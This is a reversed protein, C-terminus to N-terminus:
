SGGAGALGSSRLTDISVYTVARLPVPGVGKKKPAPPDIVTLEVITAFILENYPTSELVGFRQASKAGFTLASGSAATVTSVIDFPVVVFAGGGRLPVVLPAADIADAVTKSTSAAADISSGRLEEIISLSSTAFASEDDQVVAAEVATVIKRPAVALTSPKPVEALTGNDSAIDLKLSSPVVSALRARWPDKPGTKVFEQVRLEKSSVPKGADDTAQTAIRRQLWTAIFRDPAGPVLYTELTKPRRTVSDDFSEREGTNTMQEDWASVKLASQGIYLRDVTAVTAGADAKVWWARVAKEASANTVKTAATAPAVTAVTAVTAVALVCVLSLRQVSRLFRLNTM